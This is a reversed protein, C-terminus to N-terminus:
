RFNAYIPDPADSVSCHDYDMSSYAGDEAESNSEKNVNQYHYEGPGLANLRGLARVDENVLRIGEEDSHRSSPTPVSWPTSQHSTSSRPLMQLAEAGSGCGVINSSWLSKTTVAGDPGDSSDRNSKLFRCAPQCIWLCTGAGFVFLLVLLVQLPILTRVVDSKPSIVDKSETPRATSSLPQSTSSVPSQTSEFENNLDYEITSPLIPLISTSDHEVPHGSLGTVIKYRYSCVDTANGESDISISLTIVEEKSILRPMSYIVLKTESSTGCVIGFELNNMNPSSYQQKYPWVMANVLLSNSENFIWMDPESSSDNCCNLTYTAEELENISLRTIPSFSCNQEFSSESVACINPVKSESFMDDLDVSTSITKLISTQNSQIGNYENDNLTLDGILLRATGDRVGVTWTCSFNFYNLEGNFSVACTPQFDRYYIKATWFQCRSETLELYYTGSTSHNTPSVKVHIFCANLCVNDSEMNFGKEENGWCTIGQLVRESVASKTGSCAGEVQGEDNRLVLDEGTSTWISNISVRIDVEKGWDVTLSENKTTSCTKGAIGSSIHALRIVFMLTWFTPKSNYSNSQSYRIKEM